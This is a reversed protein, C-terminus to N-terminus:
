NNKYFQAVASNITDFLNRRRNTDIKVKATMGSRLRIKVNSSQFALRIPVRQVVKVWNGSANQPPLISLEAGTSPSISEVRAELIKDPYADIEITANQGTHIHTLQTEKLNAEIWVENAQIIPIVARGRQVYEGKQLTVRGVTGNAPSRIQARQLDLTVRNLQAMAELFMPHAEIPLKYNGGLRALIRQIKQNLARKLQRSKELVREAADFKARSSFGRASLKRQRDFVRSHYAVDHKADVIEAQVQRYEAKLANLINRVGALEAEAKSVFIRLPKPDLTFLLDGQKVRDNEKALVRIARGDIDSSVSLQPAKIYANETTVYRTSKIWYDGGIAIAVLPIICLFLSRIIFKRLFQM